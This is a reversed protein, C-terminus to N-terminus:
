PFLAYVALGLAPALLATLVTLYAFAARRKLANDPFLGSAYRYGVVEVAAFFAVALVSVLLRAVTCSVPGCDTAFEVVEPYTPQVRAAEDVTLGQREVWEALPGEELDEFRLTPDTAMVEDVLDSRGDAELLAAMACPEGNAGVFCPVREARRRNTPFRGREQYEHLRDLTRERRAAHEPALGPDTDRLAREGRRLHARIRVEEIRRRLLSLAGVLRRPRRGSM